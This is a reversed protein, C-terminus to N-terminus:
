DVLDRPKRAPKRPVGDGLQYTVLVHNWGCGQCVELTFVRLFGHQMALQPLESPRRARGSAYGLERSYVYTVETLQPRRCIPCNRDTEVGYHAAARLLYPDTDSGDFHFGGTRVIELIAQRRALSHDIVQRPQRPDAVPEAPPAPEAGSGSEGRIRSARIGGGSRPTAMPAFALPQALATSLKLPWSSNTRVCGHSTDKQYM